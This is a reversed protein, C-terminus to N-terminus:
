AAASWSVPATLKLANNSRVDPMVYSDVRLALGRRALQRIADPTVLFEGNMSNTYLVLTVAATFRRHIPRWASTSDPLAALWKEFQSRGTKKDHLRVERNELLWLGTRRFQSGSKTTDGKRYSTTPKIGLLSTVDVPDLRPGFFLSSSSRASSRVALRRGCAM